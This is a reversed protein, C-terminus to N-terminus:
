REDASQDREPRKRWAAGTGGMGVVVVAGLIEFKFEPWVPFLVGAVLLAVATILLWRDFILALLGWCFSGLFMNVTLTQVVGWGVSWSYLWLLLYFATAYTASHILMRNSRTPVVFRSLDLYLPVLMLVNIGWLALMAEHEVPAIHRDVYGLFLGLGAWSVAQVLLALGRVRSGSTTDVEVELQKLREVAMRTKAAGRDALAALDSDPIPLAAVLASAARSSGFELEYHVMQTLARQLGDRATTNGPWDSLAQNFGFRCVSLLEYARQRGSDEAELKPAALWAELELLSEGAQESLSRSSRQHLCEELAERFAEATQYRAEPERAMAKRCVEALGDATVTDLRPTKSAFAAQMVDILREGDHPPSGTLLEHLIAGLLYVDTRPGLKDTDIAAMEPAMYRPSGALHKVHRVQPLGELAEDFALAIGWDLVYVEGFPGVMVNDPKLDRHILGKSHAYHVANAVQRLIDVNHELRAGSCGGEDISETWVQGEIRKMVIMPEDDDRLSIDHIPIINPHELMGTIWAEGLIHARAKGQDVDARISKVVIERRLAHQTAVRILGMGGQGITEGISISSGMSTKFDQDGKPAMQTADLAADVMLTDVLGVDRVLTGSTDVALASSSVGLTEWHAMLDLDIDQSDSM